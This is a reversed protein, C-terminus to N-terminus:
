FRKRQQHRIRRITARLINILGNLRARTGLASWVQLPLKLGTLHEKLWSGKTSNAEEHWGTCIPSRSAATTHEPSSYQVNSGPAKNVYQEAWIPKTLDMIEKGYLALGQWYADDQLALAAESNIPQAGTSEIAKRIIESHDRFVCPCLWNDVAEAPQAYGYQEQWDRICKLFPSALATNITGGKQYITHINDTGYPVFACPSINGNWDIYFYGGGRGASICGASIPGSNWFDALLVKRERVLRRMRVLMEVRQKPTVMMELSQSRGIPMYQFLWGYVAGEQNYYFDIFRDSTFIEWNHQMPTVSIGFPVGHKRLNAFAHMIRKHTGDGRRADTEQEFGEVSIAPTINGLEAMRRAVDDTILTGNTYVMFMDTNHKAVIDLLDRKGDRWLFPEGGSIVTFHSGWLERKETLIRDFTAFDLSAHNQADSAAYCGICKLNCRGTPSILLFLPPIFGLSEDGADQVKNFVVRDIFVDLLRRQVHRSILGAQIARDISHCLAAFYEQKEELMGHLCGHPSKRQMDHWYKREIAKIVQKRIVRRHILFRFLDQVTKQKATTKRSM